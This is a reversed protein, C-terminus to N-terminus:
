EFLSPQFLVSHQGGECLKSNPHLIAKSREEIMVEMDDFEKQGVVIELFMEIVATIPM